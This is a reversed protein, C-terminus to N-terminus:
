AAGMKLEKSLPQKGAGAKAGKGGPPKRVAFGNPYRLDAYAIKVGLGSLTTQYAGAFKQLRPEM